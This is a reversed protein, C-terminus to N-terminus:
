DSDGSELGDLGFDEAPLDLLSDSPPSAAPSQDTQDQNVAESSGNRTPSKDTKRVVLDRGRRGQIEVHDGADIVGNRVSANHLQGDIRIQGSPMLPYEAVVVQGILADTDGSAITEEASKAKPPGLIIRKGLPTRPWIKIAAFAFAPISASIIALMGMGMNTSSRFGFFISAAALIGGIILLLGGSPIFLDVFAFVIAALYLLVAIFFPDM